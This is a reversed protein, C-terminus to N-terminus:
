QNTFKNEINIGNHEIKLIWFAYKTYEIEVTDHTNIADFAKKKIEYSKIDESNFDIYYSYSNGSNKSQHKKIVTFQDIVKIQQQIDKQAINFKTVVDIFLAITIIVFAITFVILFLSFEDTISLWLLFSTIAAFGFLFLVSKINKHKVIKVEADNMPAETSTM